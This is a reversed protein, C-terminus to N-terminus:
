EALCILFGDSNLEGKENVTSPMRGTIVGPWTQLNFIPQSLIYERKTQGFFHLYRNVIAEHDKRKIEKSLFGVKKLESFPVYRDIFEKDSINLEDNEM